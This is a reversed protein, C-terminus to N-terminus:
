TVSGAHVRALFDDLGAHEVGDRELLSIVVQGVNVLEEEDARWQRREEHNGVWFRWFGDLERL